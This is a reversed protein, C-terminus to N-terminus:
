TAASISARSAGDPAQRRRPPRGGGRHRARALEHAPGIGIRMLLAPSHLAGARCSSRARAADRIAEGGRRVRSAPRARATSCSGSSRRERGPDDSEAAAAGRADSLAMGRGHAHDDTHSYAVPFYGDDFVRTRTTRHQALGAHEVAAMVGRTFGPWREPAIASCASRGTRATCRGTSTAPRDRAEQLVAARRGLGLRHRRAAAWDDYDSPLGRMAAMGNISSTGGIVRGQTIACPAAAHRARQRAAARVAATVDPWIFRPNAYATAAFIDLIEPPEQGPPYDNGAEILLVRNSARESLRAALVCGASGAGVVVFDFIEDVAM